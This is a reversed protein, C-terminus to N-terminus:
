FFYNPIGDMAAAANSAAATAPVTPAAPANTSGVAPRAASDRLASQLGRVAECLARASPMPALARRAAATEPVAASRTSSSTRSVSM